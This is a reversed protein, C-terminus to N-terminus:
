NIKKVSYESVFVSDGVKVTPIVEIWLPNDCGDVQLLADLFKSNKPKIDLVIANRKNDENM